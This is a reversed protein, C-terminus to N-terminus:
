NPGASRALRFFRPSPANTTVVVNYGDAVVPSQAVAAWSGAALNTRSQLNFVWRNTPWSLLLLNGAPHLDLVPPIVDGSITIMDLWLTGGTSYSGSTQAGVYRASGQGTATSEWESVIRLGFNPNDNAGSIGSLSFGTPFWITEHPNTYVFSTNNFNLGDLTYQLRYYRSATASNYHEWSIAVNRCGVTSVRFEAGSTRNGTSQSPFTSLRWKSNDDQNPDFSDSSVDTNLSDTATGVSAAAGSGAAPTLTGTSTNYDPPNSNFDWLTIIEPRVVKLMFSESPSYDGDSIVVTIWSAGAQEPAPTLQLVRNAGSGTVAIGSQLLLIGNSSYATATVNSPGTEPDDVTFPIAATTNALITHHDFNNLIPALNTWPPNVPATSFRWVPSTTTRSGNNVTVYWDYATGSSRGPWACSATSGSAVTNTAIPVFATTASPMACAFQFQSDADTEYQRIWPSYSFVRVTNMAPSFRLLRLFGNGGNPRFQYDSVLTRITNGNYVDERSGEGNVHGCLMLFLNTNAKLANYTVSGQTGFSSPTTPAGLYHSVVIARRQSYTQLLSNAWVLVSADPGTDYELYVAIFDMGGATFLDFHSDNNTGYYGGYYSKGAFHNTGFFRNYFATTAGTPDGNPEQDHNGVATGYPIGAPLGTTLPNELRYLANTAVQWQSLTDGTDVIDGVHAVYAINWSQRNAVIWDTQATFMAALGRRAVASYYQSDPLVTITFDPGATIPAGYFTVTLNQQDPDTVNVQLTPSTSVNVQNSAPSVLLPQAPAAAFTPNPGGLVMDPLKLNQYSPDSASAFTMNLPDASSGSLIAGFWDNSTSGTSSGKRGVYMAGATTPPAGPVDIINGYRSSGAAAGQVRLTVAGYSFDTPSGTASGDIIGVSDLVSWGAPLPDLLGDDDADLDLDLTPPAGTGINVLLITTTGNELDVQTGDGSHGVTSSGTLGWGQGSTNQAVAAGVATNAYPSFNQRVLLCGNAGLSFSGLNFFQNVDGRSTTGGGELSLLYCGALSQGPNGRLEFYENGYTAASDSGNPNTLVENIWVSQAAALRLCCALAALSAIFASAFPRPSLTM